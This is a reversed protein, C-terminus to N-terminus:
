PTPVIFYLLPGWCGLAGAAAQSRRLRSLLLCRVYTAIQKEKLKLSNLHRMLVRKDPKKRRKEKLMLQKLAKMEQELHAIRAEDTQQKLQLKNLLAM